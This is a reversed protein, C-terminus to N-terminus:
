KKTQTDAAADAAADAVEKAKKEEAETKIATVDGVEGAELKKIEDETMPPEVTAVTETAERTTKVGKPLVLSGVTISDDFTKLTSLDVVIEKPLDGPLCEVELEDMSKALTGGLAKVALSEGTFVLPIGLTVTEDMRLQRFDVHVPHMNVPNVQVEGILAKVPKEDGIVLDFLTSHKVQRFLKAFEIGLVQLSRSPLGHGYTVAKLLAPNEHSGAEKKQRLQAKLITTM